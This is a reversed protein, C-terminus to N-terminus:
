NSFSAVFNLLYFLMLSMEARAAQPFYSQLSFCFFFFVRFNRGQYLIRILRLDLLRVYMYLAFEICLSIFAFCFLPTNQCFVCGNENKRWWLVLRVKKWSIM